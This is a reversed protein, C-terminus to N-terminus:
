RARRCDLPRLDLAVAGRAAISPVRGGGQSWATQLASHALGCCWPPNKEAPGSRKSGKQLAIAASAFMMMIAGAYRWVGSCGKGARVDERSGWSGWAGQSIIWQQDHGRTRASSAFGWREVVAVLHQAPDCSGRLRTVVRDVAGLKRDAPRGHAAGDRDPERELQSLLRPARFRDAQQEEVVGAEGVLGVRVRREMVRDVLDPVRVDRAVRPLKVERVARVREVGDRAAVDHGRERCIERPQRLRHHHARLPIVESVIRDCERAAEQLSADGSFNVYAENQAGATQLHGIQSTRQTNAFCVYRPVKWTDSLNKCLALILMRLRWFM